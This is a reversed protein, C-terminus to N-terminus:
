QTGTRLSQLRDTVLKAESTNPPANSLYLQYYHVASNTDKKRWAIEGLGYFVQFRNTFVKELSQYDQQAENLKDSNLYAIARDMLAAYNTADLSLARTLPPIAQEYQGMQVRLFGQNVLATANDPQRDLQRDEAVHDPIEVSLDAREVLDDM